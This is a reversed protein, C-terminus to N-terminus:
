SNERDFLGEKWEIRNDEGLFENAKNFHDCGSFAQGWKASMNKSKNSPHTAVLPLRHENYFSFLNNAGVEFSPKGWFMFVIKKGKEKSKRDLAKIIAGTLKGWGLRKHSKGDEGDVGITLYTNLLLVDNKAWPELSIKYEENSADEFVKDLNDDDGRYVEQLINKLSGPVVGDGPEFALGSAREIYPYPDQALIVVKVKEFKTLELARFVKDKKPAIKKKSSYENIVDNLIEQLEKDTFDDGIVKNYYTTEKFIKYLENKNENENAKNMDVLM